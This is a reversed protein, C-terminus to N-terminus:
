EGRPNLHVAKLAIDEIASRMSSIACYEVRYQGYISALSACKIITSILLIDPSVQAKRGVLRDSVTTLQYISDDKIFKDKPLGYNTMLKYNRFFKMFEQYWEPAQFGIVDEMDLEKDFAQFQFQGKEIEKYPTYGKVKVCGLEVCEKLLSAELQPIIELGYEAADVKGFAAMIPGFLSPYEFNVRGTMCKKDNLDLIRAAFAVKFSKEILTPIDSEELNFKKKTDVKIFDNVEKWTLNYVAQYMSETLWTVPLSNFSVVPREETSVDDAIAARVVVKDKVGYKTVLSVEGSMANERSQKM